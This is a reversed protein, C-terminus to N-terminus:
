KKSNNSKVAVTRSRTRAKKTKAVARTARITPRGPDEAPRVDEPTKGSHKDKLSFAKQGIM